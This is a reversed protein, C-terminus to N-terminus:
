GKVERVKRDLHARGAESITEEEEEGEKGVKSGEKWKEARELGGAKM